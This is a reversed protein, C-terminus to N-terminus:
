PCGVKFILPNHLPHYPVSPNRLSLWRKVPNAPSPPLGPNMLDGWGSVREPNALAAEIAAPPARGEVFTCARPDHEPDSPTPPVFTPRPTPTAIPIATPLCRVDIETSGDFERGGDFRARAVLDFRGTAGPPAEIRWVVSGTEGPEVDPFAREVTEGAALRLPAPVAITARGGTLAVVDVNNVFFSLAFATGCDAEVPAVAFALGGKRASIGYRTNVALADGPAFTRPEWMMAVASDETVAQTPEIEYLWDHLWINRWDVIWFRDPRTVSPHDLIGVGRLGDPDYTGSEFAVWYPPVDAGAFGSEQTVAGVGPVFYPAGDNRGIQVDLLSRLGIDLEVDHENRVKFAADVVDDRGSFPNRALNITQTIRLRYPEPRYWVTEVGAASRGQLVIQTEDQMTFLDVGRDGSTHVTFFGTGVDSAGGPQFGYLLGRDDDLPTDPDGGTTGFTWSGTGGVDARVHANGVGLCAEVLPDCTLPRPKFVAAVATGGVAAFCLLVALFTARRHAHMPRSVTVERLGLPREARLVDRAM